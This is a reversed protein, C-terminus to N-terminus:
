RIKIEGDWRRGWFFVRFWNFYCEYDFFCFLFFMNIVERFRIGWFFRCINVYFFGLRFVMKSIIVKIKLSYSIFDVFFVVCFYM